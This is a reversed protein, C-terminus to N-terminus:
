PQSGVSDSVLPPSPPTPLSDSPCRSSLGLLQVAGWLSPAGLSAELHLQLSQADPLIGAQALPDTRGRKKDWLKM